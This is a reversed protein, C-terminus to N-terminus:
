WSSGGNHPLNAFAFSDWMNVSFTGIDTVGSPPSFPDPFGIFKYALPDVGQPAAWGFPDMVGQFGNVGAGDPTTAFTYSRAGTLNTLRFAMFDLHYGGSCGSTGVYGIVDGKKVSTGAPAMPGGWKQVNLYIAPDLTNPHLDMHHYAAIFHEAYEGSGVQTELFLEAQTPSACNSVPRAWSARVIGDAVAVIPRDKPLSWDYAAEPVAYPNNITAGTSCVRTRTGTRDVECADTGVHGFDAVNWPTVNGTQQLHYGFVSTGGIAQTDSDGFPSRWFPMKTPSVTFVCNKQATTVRSFIWNIADGGYARGYYLVGGDCRVMVNNNGNIAWLGAHRVVSYPGVSGGLQLCSNGSTVAWLAWGGNTPDTVSCYNGYGSPSLTGGVSPLIGPDGLAEESQDLEPQDLCGALVM